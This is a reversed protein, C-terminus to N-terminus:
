ITNNNELNRNNNKEKIDERERERGGVVRGQEM